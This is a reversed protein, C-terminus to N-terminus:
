LRPVFFVRYSSASPVPITKPFSSAATASSLPFTNSSTMSVIHVPPSHSRTSSIRKKFFFPYANATLPLSASCLM